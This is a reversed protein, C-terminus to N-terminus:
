PAARACSPIAPEDALQAVHAVPDHAGAPHALQWIKWQGGAKFHHMSPMGRM